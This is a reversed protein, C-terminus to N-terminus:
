QNRGSNQLWEVDPIVRHKEKDMLAADVIIPKLCITKSVIGGQYIFLNLVRM